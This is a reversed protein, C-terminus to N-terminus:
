KKIFCDIFFYTLSSSCLYDYIQYDGKKKPNILCDAAPYPVNIDHHDIIISKINKSKLYEIAKLSNSGCDVMIILNPKKKSLKKILKLSAGYGDNFRDPIYFDSRKNILKFFKLLLSTSICGDVDYDGIVLIKDKNELSKNLIEVGNIFDKKGLFPNFVDVSTHTLEIETQNFKRSIILKALIEDFGLDVKLKEIIRKSVKIEEWNKGSVSIM